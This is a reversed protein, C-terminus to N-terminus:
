QVQFATPIADESNLKSAIIKTTIGVHKGSLDNEIPLVAFMFTSGQIEEPVTVNLISLDTSLVMPIERVTEGTVADKAYLIANQIDDGVVQYPLFITITEGTSCIAQENGIAMEGGPKTVVPYITSELRAPIEEQAFIYHSDNKSCSFFLLTIFAMSAASVFKQM